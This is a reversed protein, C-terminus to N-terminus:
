LSSGPDLLEAADFGLESIVWDIGEDPELARGEALAANWAAGEFQEGIIDRMVWDRAEYPALVMSLRSRIAETLGWARAATEIDGDAALVCAAGYLTHCICAYNRLKRFNVLAEASLRKSHESVTGLSADALAVVDAGHAVLTPVGAKTATEYCWDLSRRAADRNRGLEFVGTLLNGSFVGIKDDAEVHLATSKEFTALTEDRSVIGAGACGRYFIAWGLNRTDGAGEFIAGAETLRELAEEFRGTRICLLGGIGIQLRGRLRDPLDAGAAALISTAWEYGENLFSTSDRMATSDGESAYGWFFRTMAAAVSAGAVPDNERAWDLAARINDIELRFKKLWAVQDRGELQRAGEKVLAAVWEFLAREAAELGEPGLQEVGYQRITELMHYRATDGRTVSILSTAVLHDLGDIVDADGAAAEAADLDFGGAFVALRACLDREAESLLDFSWAVSERLTQHHPIQDRSGGRLLKFRDDLRRAIDAVSMSRVRAAALEIALPLGDLRHCIEAITPANAEGLAFSADASHARDIFLAGSDSVKVAAPDDGHPLGLTPIAWIQEGGIGLPERSTAIIDVDPAAQLIAAVTSAADHLLHECNDIVLLARESALASTLATLPESQAPTPRSMAGLLETPILAGDTIPALEVLWVGGPYDDLRSRAVEVAITTKGAGGPGTITLLRATELLEDIQELEHTRGVFSKIAAPLNSPTSDTRLPPFSEKAGGYDVQFIREPRSLGRLHHQGLDRFVLGDIDGVLERTAASILIQGGHGAAEIRAARNPSPGLYDGDVATAPGTHAGMRVAVPGIADDWAAALLAKQGAAAASIADTPDVFVSMLGDGLKKVIRGRNNKVAEDLARDHTAVAAEMAVRDTDWKATSGEIDTFLFTVIGSPLEM